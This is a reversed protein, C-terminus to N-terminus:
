AKRDIYILFVYPKEDIEGHIEGLTINFHLWGFESKVM